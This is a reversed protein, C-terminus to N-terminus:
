RHRTAMPNISLLALQASIERAVVELAVAMRVPDNKESCAELYAAIDQESKLYDASDYQSFTEKKKNTM